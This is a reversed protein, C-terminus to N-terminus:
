LIRGNLLSQMRDIFVGVPDIVELAQVVELALEMRFPFRAIQDIPIEGGQRRDDRRQSAGV